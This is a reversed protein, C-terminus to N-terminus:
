TGGAILGHSCNVDNAPTTPCCGLYAQMLLTVAAGTDPIFTAQTGAIQVYM